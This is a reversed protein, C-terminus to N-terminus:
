NNKSTYIFVYSNGEQRMIFMSTMMLFFLTERNRVIM